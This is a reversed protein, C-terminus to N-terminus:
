ARLEAVAPAESRSEAPAFEVPLSKIQSLVGKASWRIEQELLRAREPMFDLAAGIMLRLQMRAINAGGCYHHGHSFGMHHRADRRLDLRDPDAFVRPDRNAGMLSALVLQGRRFKQDHFEFDELVYRPMFLVGNDFRMLEEIANPLLSRDRRLEALQEPHHLLTRMARAFGVSTTGSGASVLGAVVRTVLDVASASRDSAALLDSILDESPTAIREQVLGSVYNGMEVVAGEMRKRKKDSAFPRILSVARVALTRFHIEDEDKIPVGLMRGLSTAAVPVGFEELLDVLDTRGRLPAAFREVVEQMCAELRAAARPTVAAAVLRRGHSIGDATTSRFPAEALWHAAEPTSPPTYREFARPDTTVRFDGALLRVDEHRTVIWADLGPMWYVPDHERLYTIVPIPDVPSGLIISPDLLPKSEM